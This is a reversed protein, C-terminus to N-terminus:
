TVGLSVAFTSIDTLACSSMIYSSNLLRAVAIMMATKRTNTTMAACNSDGLNENMTMVVIGNAMIPAQPKRHSKSISKLM